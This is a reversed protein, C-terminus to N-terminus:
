CKEVEHQLLETLQLALVIAIASSNIDISEANFERDSNRLIENLDVKMRLISKVPVTM